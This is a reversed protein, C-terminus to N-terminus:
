VAIRFRENRVFQVSELSSVHYSRTSYMRIKCFIQCFPGGADEGGLGTMEARRPIPLRRHQIKKM